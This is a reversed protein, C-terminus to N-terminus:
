LKILEFLEMKVENKLFLGSLFSNVTSSNYDKVGRVHMCFHKADMIVAVDDTALLEILYNGIDNILREQIQPRAAFHRVIRPFKSLGLVRKGPLYAIHCKGVFPLLHHECTSAFWIDKIVEINNGFKNEFSTRAIPPPQKGVGAFLENLYMKAVRDPTGKLSDDNLNLGLVGMIARVHKSIEIAKQKDTM